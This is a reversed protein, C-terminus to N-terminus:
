QSSEIHCFSRPKGADYGNCQSGNPNWAGIAGGNQKPHSNYWTFKDSASHLGVEAEDTSEIQKVEWVLQSVRDLVCHWQSADAPLEVGSRDLKVYDFLQTNATKGADRGEACDQREAFLRARAQNAGNKDAADSESAHVKASCTTNIGEPYDGGYTIGTDNLSGALASGGCLLAFCLTVCRSRRVLAFPTADITLPLLPAIKNMSNITTGM